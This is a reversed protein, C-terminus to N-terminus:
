IWRRIFNQTRSAVALFQRKGSAIWSEDVLRRNLALLERNSSAYGAAFESMRRLTHQHWRLGRELTALRATPDSIRSWSEWIWNLSYTPVHTEWLRRRIDEVLQEAHPVFSHFQVQIDRVRSISGTSVLHDLLEFEGGEINIKLLDVGKLEHEDLFAAFEKVESEVVEGGGLAYSSTANDNLSLRFVGNRSGLALSFVSIDANGRFRELIQRAFSPVPEFVFIRCGYRRYIQESWEGQYGGLDFVISSNDLDYDLRLTHDGDISNWFEASTELLFPGDNAIM